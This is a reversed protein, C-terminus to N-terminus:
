ANFNTFLDVNEKTIIDIPMYNEFKAKQGYILFQLLAEMAMFGQQDPRQCLLYHISGEKLAQINADTLDMCVFKLDNLNRKKLYDIIINGRSNLVVAGKVDPNKEFFDGILEDNQRTDIASYPVSYIKNCLKNEEYFALFGAERLITINASENGTHMARLLAVGSGPPVLQHILKCMLYGCVHPDAVFFALPSIGEIMSDVLVHPINMGSLKNVLYVTEDRFTPGIIVADPNLRIIEEFTKRCSFLDFQNYFCYQISIKLRYYKDMAKQIGTVFADWYQGKEYQPITIVFKYERKLTLASVHIDPKYDMNELAAEIAKRSEDSVNGRNHLVRDVTGTSVGALKAIDKIRIRESM